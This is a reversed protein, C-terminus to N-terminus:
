GYIAYLLDNLSDQSFPKTVYGKVISYDKSKEKDDFDDSSSVMTIKLQNHGETKIIEDLFEWGSWIPMNIDLLILQPLQSGGNILVDNIAEYAEKGDKYVVLEIPTESDRNALLRKVLFIHIPDDDVVCLKKSEM